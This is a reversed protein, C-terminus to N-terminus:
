YLQAAVALVVLCQLEEPVVVAVVEAMPVPYPLFWLDTLLKAVAVDAEALEARVVLVLEAVVWVAVV